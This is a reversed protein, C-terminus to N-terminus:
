PRADELEKYPYSGSFRADKQSAPPYPFGSLARLYGATERDVTAPKKRGCELCRASM